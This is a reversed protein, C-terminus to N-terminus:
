SHSLTVLLASLRWILSRPSLSRFVLCNSVEKIESVEKDVIVEKDKKETKDKKGM